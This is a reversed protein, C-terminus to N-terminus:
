HQYSDARQGKFATPHHQSSSPLEAKLNDKAARQQQSESLVAVQPM